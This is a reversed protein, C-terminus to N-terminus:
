VKILSLKSLLLSYSELNDCLKTVNHGAIEDPSDNIGLEVMNLDSIM